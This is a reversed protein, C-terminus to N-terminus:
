TGVILLAIYPVFNFVLVLIKYTLIGSYTSTDIQEPSIRYCRGVLRYLWSHPLLMSLGWLVLVAYNILGCWLLLSRLTAVSM